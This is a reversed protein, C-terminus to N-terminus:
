KKKKKETVSRLRKKYDRTYYLKARRVVKQDVFEIKDILPSHIPYIREVGIGESIKRVTITAGPENGHKRALVMGEFVQIREKEEGKATVDKIKQHVRIVMGPKVQSPDIIQKDSVKAIAM